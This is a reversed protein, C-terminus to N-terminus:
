YKVGSRELLRETLEVYGQPDLAKAFKKDVNILYISHLRANLIDDYSVPPNKYYRDCLNQIKQIDEKKRANPPILFIKPIPILGTAPTALSFKSCYKSYRAIKSMIRATSYDITDLAHDPPTFGTEIEIITDGDGKKAYLDCVLIDSVEKEVEVAYGNKILNAACILELVSHNIKVLNRKYMDILQFKVSNLKTLDRESLSGALNDTVESVDNQFKEVDM